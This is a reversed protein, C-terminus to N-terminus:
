SFIRFIEEADFYRNNDYASAVQNQEVATIIKVVFDKNIRSDYSQMLELAQKFAQEQFEVTQGTQLQLSRFVSNAQDYGTQGFVGQLYLAAAVTRRAYGYAMLNMIDTHEDISEAMDNNINAFVGEDLNNVRNVVDSLTLENDIAAYKGLKWEKMIGDVTKIRLETMLQQNPYLMMCLKSLEQQPGSAGDVDEFSNNMAGLYDDKDFGSTSAFTKATGDGQSAAELEELVFQIAVEESPLKQTLYEALQKATVDVGHTQITELMENKM